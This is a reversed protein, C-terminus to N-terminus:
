KKKTKAPAKKAAKKPAPKAEKKPTPKKAVEKEKAPEKKEPAKAVAKPKPEEALEDWVLIIERSNINFRIEKIDLKSTDMVLEEGQISTKRFNTKM